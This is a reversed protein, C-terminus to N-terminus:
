DIDCIYSISYVWRRMVVTGFEVDNEELVRWSDKITARDDIFQQSQGYEGALRDMEEYPSHIEEATQTCKLGEGVIARLYTPGRLQSERCARNFRRLSHELIRSWATFPFSHSVM